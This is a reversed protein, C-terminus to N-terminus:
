QDGMITEPLNLFQFHKARIRAPLLINRLANRWL